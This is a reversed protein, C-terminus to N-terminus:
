SAEKGRTSFRFPLYLPCFSIVSTAFMIVAVPLFLLSGTALWGAVMALGIVFRLIRDTNGMNRTM